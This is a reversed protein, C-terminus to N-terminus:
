RLSIRVDPAEVVTMTSARACATRMAKPVPVFPSNETLGDTESLFHLMLVFHM